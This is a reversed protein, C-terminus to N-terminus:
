RTRSPSLAAVLGLVLYISGTVRRGGGSGKFRAGLLSVVFVYVLNFTAAIVVFVAGLAAFQGGGKDPDIFQPFFALFFLAVKPNLLQVVIAEAYARGLPAPPPPAAEADSDSDRRRWERLGMFVLYAAGAYRVADFATASSAVLASLGVAAASVHIITGTEIGAASAYGARRGEALTRAAIYVLNPGPVAILAAAALAFVVLTSTDPM